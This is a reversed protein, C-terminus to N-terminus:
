GPYMRHAILGGAVSCGILLLCRAERSIDFQRGLWYGVLGGGTIGTALAIRRVAARQELSMPASSYGFARRAARTSKAGKSRNCDIHAPYLNNLRDTGGKSRPVSHDIEWGRPSHLRGYSRPGVPEHCIHCDGGSRAYVAHKLETTVNM